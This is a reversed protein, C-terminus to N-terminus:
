NNRYGHCFLIIEKEFQQQNTVTSHSFRTQDNSKGLVVEVRGVDGGDTRIADSHRGQRACIPNLEQLKRTVDNEEQCELKEGDNGSRKHCNKLQSQKRVGM